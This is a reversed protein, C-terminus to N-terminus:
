RNLRQAISRMDERFKAFEPGSKDATRMGKETEGKSHRLADARVILERRRADQAVLEDLAAGAGKRSLRDAYVDSHKRIDRIDLM